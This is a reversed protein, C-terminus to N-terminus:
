RFAAVLFALLAVTMAVKSLTQERNLERPLWRISVVFLADAALVSGLYIIGVTSGPGLLYLLPLPSLGIGVIASVRATGTAVSFGRTRPLTRRDVDGEADEMDKIVERSLTAFFAMLAFPGVISVDGVSAGGYLFVAGTLFAVLLNGAFGIAKFRLEYAFLALLAAFLIVGLFPRTPIQPAVALVAVVFLAAGTWRAGRVSVEGTVLPRSPHNVKDSERDILDNLVNGGGTVCATSLAALLLALLVGLGVALGRGDAALGGVVTGVFSVLVNGIRVLRLVPPVHTSPPVAAM